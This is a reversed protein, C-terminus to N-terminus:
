CPLRDGKASGFIRPIIVPKARSSWKVSRAAFNLTVSSTLTDQVVPLVGSM